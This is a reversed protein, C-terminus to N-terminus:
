AAADADIEAYVRELSVVLERRRAGYRERDVGGDRHQQELATLEGFLRDRKTQLKKRRADAAATERGAFVTAWLGAGLIVVAAALALNRPWLPQHPLGAFTLSLTDGAGLGQGQGVIYSQGDAPMERHQQIQPSDLRMEGVKQAMVTVQNLAV